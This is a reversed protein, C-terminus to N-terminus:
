NGGTKAPRLATVDGARIIKIEGAETEVRLAGDPELGRTVGEFIENDLSVRVRRNQAYSSRASWERITQAAGDPSQLMQYRRALSRTLAQLLTEVDPATGTVAEVSTATDRLEEPFARDSLNIGIGVICARGTETEVTEALIGCLKRNQAHIDNPWKIDTELKCAEKLADHVALAAMLTILPWARMELRPRLIISFYLGAGPPSLWARQQRGRGATQERAVICLGEPAGRAAQRTAETNTSPLSNFHLIIPLLSM